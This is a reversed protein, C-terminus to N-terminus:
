SGPPAWRMAIAVAEARSRTGLKHLIHQIHNRATLRSIFLAGAVEQTGAGRVLLCLIERERKTLMDLPSPARDLARLRGLLIEDALRERARLDTVDRMFHVVGIGPAPVTSFNVWRQEGGRAAVTMDRPAVREGREAMVFLPCRPCCVLNGSPDRGCFVQHCRRGAVEGASYGLMAEAALNWLIIRQGRDVAFAGDGANAVFAALWNLAQRREISAAVTSM